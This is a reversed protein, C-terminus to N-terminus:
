CGCRAGSGASCFRWRCRVSLILKEYYDMAGAYRSFAYAGGSLVLAAFAWDFLSRGTFFGAPGSPRGITMGNMGNMGKMPKLTTTNM